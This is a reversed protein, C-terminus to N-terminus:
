VPVLLRLQEKAQMELYKTKASALAENFLAKCANLRELNEMTSRAKFKKRAKRVENSLTTLQPNWYPKSHGTIKKQPVIQDSATFETNLNM